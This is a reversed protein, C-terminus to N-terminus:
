KGLCRRSMDLKNGLMYNAQTCIETCHAAKLGAARALRVAISVCLDYLSVTTLFDSHPVAEPPTIIVNPQLPPSSCSMLAKISM